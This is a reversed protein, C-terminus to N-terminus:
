LLSGSNDKAKAAALAAPTLLVPAKPAEVPKPAVVTKAVIPEVYGARKKAEVMPFGRAVLNCIRLEIEPSM